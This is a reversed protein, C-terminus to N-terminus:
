HGQGLTATPNFEIYTPQRHNEMSRRFDMVRIMQVTWKGAIKQVKIVDFSKVEEGDAGYCVARIPAGAGEDFWVDARGYTSEGFPPTFRVVVCSKTRFILRGAREAHPWFLFRFAIDEFSLTTGPIEAGVGLATNSIWHSDRYEEVSAKGGVRIRYRNTPETLVFEVYPYAMSYRFRVARDGIRIKGELAQNRQILTERASHIMDDLEADPTESGGGVPGYPVTILAVLVLLSRALLMM